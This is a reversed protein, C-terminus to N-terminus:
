PWGEKPAESKPQVMQWSADNLDIAEGRAVDGVHYRWDDAKLENLQGLREVTERATPSLLDIAEDTAMGEACAGAGYHMCSLTDGRNCTTPETAAEAGHRYRGKMEEQRRKVVFVIGLCAGLDSFM